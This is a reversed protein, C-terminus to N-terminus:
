WLVAEDTCGRGAPWTALVPQERLKVILFSQQKMAFPQKLSNAAKISGQMVWNQGYGLLSDFTQIFRGCVTDILSVTNLYQM